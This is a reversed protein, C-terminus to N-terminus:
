ASIPGGTGFGSAASGVAGQMDFDAGEVNIGTQRIAAIIETNATKFVNFCQEYANFDKGQWTAKMTAYNTNGDDLLAQATAHATTLATKITAYSAPEFTIIGNGPSTM